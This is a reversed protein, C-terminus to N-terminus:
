MLLGLFILIAGGYGLSTKRNQYDLRTSSFTEFDCRGAECTLLTKMDHDMIIPLSVMGAHKAVALQEARVNATVAIVPIHGCLTGEAEWLRIQRVCTLGDMVPMELDMLIVSLEKGIQQNDNWFTTSKLHQLAEEGHCALATTCGAKQLQKCLVRRNVFNDEVILIHMEQPDMDFIPKRSTSPSDFVTRADEYESDSARRRLYPDMTSELINDNSGQGDSRKTKVYFAFKSGVGSVSSVGIQGGHLETLQRSIFLGLGSGGYQAHTRPSAQSFRQFLLKKEDETLGRGTDEIEFLLYLAEGTGWEPADLRSSNPKASKPPIFKFGSAKCYETPPSSFAGIRVTIMRKNESQTFKIANTMLNIFVQLVRSPDLVVRGVNLEQYSQQTHSQLIIDKKHLEAEFMKVARRVVSAPEVVIPTIVLLDSDLKSITLIDDVIGKQHQACMAITEAAEICNEVLAERLNVKDIEPQTSPGDRVAQYIHRNM